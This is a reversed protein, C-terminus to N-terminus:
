SMIWLDLGKGKLAKGLFFKARLLRRKFEKSFWRWSITGKKGFGGDDSLSRPLEEFEVLWETFVAQFADRRAFPTNTDNRRRRCRVRLIVNKKTGNGVPERHKSITTNLYSLIKNFTSITSQIIIMFIGKFMALLALFFAAIWADSSSIETSTPNSKIPKAKQRHKRPIPLSSLPSKKQDAQQPTTGTPNMPLQSIADM